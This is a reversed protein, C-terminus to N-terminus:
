TSPSSAIARRLARPRAAGSAFSGATGSWGDGGAVKDRFWREKIALGAMGLETALLVPKLLLLQRGSYASLCFILRNRELLLM